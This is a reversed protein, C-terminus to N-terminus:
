AGGLILASVLSAVIALTLLTLGIFPNVLWLGFGILGVTACTAYAAASITNRM